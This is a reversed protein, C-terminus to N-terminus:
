FVSKKFGVIVGHQLNKLLIVRSYLSYKNFHKSNYSIICRGVLKSYTAFKSILKIFKYAKLRTYTFINKNILILKLLYIKKNFSNLWHRINIEKLLFKNKYNNIVGM